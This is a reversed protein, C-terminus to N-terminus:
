ITALGALANTLSTPNLRAVLDQFDEVEPERSFLEGSLERKPRPKNFFPTLSLLSSAAAMGPIIAPHLRAELEEIEPEAERKPRKFLPILPAAAAIGMLGAALANPN